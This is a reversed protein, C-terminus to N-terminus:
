GDLSLPLEFLRRRTALIHFYDQSTIFKLKGTAELSEFNKSFWQCSLKSDAMSFKGELFRFMNNSAEELILKMSPHYTHHQLQHLLDQVLYKTTIDSSKYVVVARLDDFYRFFSLFWLYDYISCRFQFEYYICVVMSFIPSGPGGQPLGLLQLFVKGNLVFFANKIQFCSVKFIMKFSFSISDEAYYSKGLRNKKREKCFVTVYSRRSKREITKIVWEIANLIDNQPLWDYMEKVDAAFSIYSSESGFMNNLQLYLLKMTPLAELLGFLNTHFFNLAKVCTMLGAAARSYVEKLPHYFYSIINQKRTLDKFKRMVYAYPLSGFPLFKGITSWNNQEYNFKFHSIISEPTFVEQLQFNSNKWFSSFIYDWLITPCYIDAVGSNRDPAALILQSGLAKRVHRVESITPLPSKISFSEPFQDFQSIISLIFHPLIKFTTLMSHLKNFAKNKFIRNNNQPPVHPIPEFFAQAFFCTQDFFSHFSKM